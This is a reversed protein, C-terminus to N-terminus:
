RIVFGFATLSASLVFSLALIRRARKKMAEEQKQAILVCVKSKAQLYGFSGAFFPLFLFGRWERPAGSQELWLFLGIGAGFGLLGLVARQLVGGADLNTGEALAQPNHMATKFYELCKPCYGEKTIWAPNKKQVEAVIHKDTHEMFLSLNREMKEGCTPCTYTQM